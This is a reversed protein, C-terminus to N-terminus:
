FNLNMGDSKMSNVIKKLHKRKLECVMELVVTNRDSRVLFILGQVHGKAEKIMVDVDGGKNGNSKVTMLEDYGDKRLKRVVDDIKLKGKLDPLEKDVTMFSFSKVSNIFESVEKDQEEGFLSLMGLFNGSVSMTNVGDYKGFENRIEEFYKSQCYSLTSFMSFLFLATISKAIVTAKM